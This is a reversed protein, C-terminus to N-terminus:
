VPAFGRMIAVKRVLELDEFVAENEGGVSGAVRREVGRKVDEESLALLALVAHMAPGIEVDLAAMVNALYALDTALQREGHPSMGRVRMVAALIRVVTERALSTLWLHTVADAGTDDTERDTATLHPLYNVCAAFGEDDGYLDLQQPLTLLHE